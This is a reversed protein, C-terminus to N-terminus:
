ADKEKGMRMIVIVIIIVIAFALFIGTGIGAKVIGAVADCSSLVLPLLLLALLTGLYTRKM